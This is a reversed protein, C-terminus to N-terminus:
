ARKAPSAGGSSDKGAANQKPAVKAGFGFEALFPERPARIDVHKKTFPNVFALRVARLGLPLKKDRQGYL